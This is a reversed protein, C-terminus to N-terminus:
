MRHLIVHGNPQCVPRGSVTHVAALRALEHIHRRRLTHMHSIWACESVHRHRVCRLHVLRQRRHVPRASMLHVVNPRGSVSLARTRVPRMIHRGHPVARQRGCVPLVDAPRNPECLQGSRVVFMFVSRAVLHGHRRSLACVGAHWVHRRVLGGWVFHLQDTWYLQYGHRASVSQM